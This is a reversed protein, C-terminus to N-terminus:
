LFTPPARAPKTAWAFLPRPARYFLAPHSPQSSTPLVATRHTSVLKVLQLHCYPCEDSHSSRNDSGGAPQAPHQGRWDATPATAQQTVFGQATCIEAFPDFTGQAVSLKALMPALVSAFMGLLAIVAVRRLRASSFMALSTYTLEDGPPAM